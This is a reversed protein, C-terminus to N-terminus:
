SYDFSAGNTLIGSTYHTRNIRDITEVILDEITTFTSDSRSQIEIKWDERRDGYRTALNILGQAKLLNDLQGFKNSAGQRAQSHSFATGNVINVAEVQTMAMIVIPIEVQQVSLRAIDQALRILEGHLQDQPDRHRALLYLLAVLNKTGESKPRPVLYHLTKTVRDQKNEAEPLGDQLFSLESAGVVARLTPASEFESCKALINPCETYLLTHLDPM